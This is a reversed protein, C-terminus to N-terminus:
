VIGMFQNIRDTSERVAIIVQELKEFDLHLQEMPAGEARLAYAEWGPASGALHAVCNSLHAIVSLRPHPLYVPHHHHAVAEVIEDPLQWSKLLCAGVEAHDTGFVEHEAEVIAQHGETVRQRVANQAEPTLVHVMVLKGIDHLLGVTFAVSAEAGVDVGNRVLVEASTAATLSHRWLENAEIAYGPLEVAMPGGFALSLVMQLIQSHGILLVAQDVSTIPEELGVAPSNCARLLKATLVSDHKLVQVVEDNSGEPHDLLTVLKLAAHSVAPLNRAKAVMEQATM